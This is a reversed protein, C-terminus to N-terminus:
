IHHKRGITDVRAACIHLVCAKWSHHHCKQRYSKSAPLGRHTPVANHPQAELGGKDVHNAQEEAFHFPDEGEHTIRM